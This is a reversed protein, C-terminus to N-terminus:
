KLEYLNYKNVDKPYTALLKVSHIDCDKLKLTKCFWRVDGGKILLRTAHNDKLLSFSKDEGSLIYGVDIYSFDAYYFSGISYTAVLDKDSIWKDFDKNFDYYSVNDRGMVRTLYKNQDAWGFGYPLVLITNIFYYLFIILFSINFVYKALRSKDLMLVIGSSIIMSSAIFWTILYRGWSVKIVFQELTLLIFLIVLPSGKVVKGLKKYNFLSFVIGVFFLPSLIKMNEYTFMEWNLNIYHSPPLIFMPNVDSINEKMFFGNMIPFVPNGTLLYARIHWVLAVALMSLSFLVLLELINRKRRDKNLIALYLIFVPLYALMWIKTSVVAGFLLGSLVASRKRIKKTILILSLFILFIAFFDTYETSSYKIVGPATAFLLPVYKSFSYKKEQSFRFLLAITLIYFGFHIFRAAEKDGFFSPILYIMEALQSYPIVHQVEKSEIMSTHANLYMRPLDTHYGDEGIEPTMLRLFAILVFLLVGLVIINKRLLLSKRIDVIQKIFSHLSEGRLFPYLAILLVVLLYMVLIDTQLLSFMGLIGIGTGIVIYGLAISIFFRFQKIEKFFLKRLIEGISYFVVFILSALFFSSFFHAIGEPNISFAIFDNRVNIFNNLINM